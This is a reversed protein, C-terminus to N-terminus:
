LAGISPYLPNQVLLEAARARHSDRVGDDLNFHAKSPDGAKTLAPEASRLVGCIIDAVDDMDDTDMGVTTLAPTGL